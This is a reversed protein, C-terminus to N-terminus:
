STGRRHGTVGVQHARLGEVPINFPASMQRGLVTVRRTVNVGIKKLNLRMFARVSDMRCVNRSLAVAPPAIMPAPAPLPMEAFNMSRPPASRMKM